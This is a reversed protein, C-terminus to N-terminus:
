SSTITNYVLCHQLHQKSYHHHLDLISISGQMDPQGVDSVPLNIILNDFIFNHPYSIKIYIHIDTLPSNNVTNTGIDYMQMQRTQDSNTIQHKVVFSFFIKHKNELLNHQNVYSKKIFICFLFIGWQRFLELIWSRIYDKCLGISFHYFSASEIWVFVHGSM